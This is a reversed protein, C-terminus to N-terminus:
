SGNPLSAGQIATLIAKCSFEFYVSWNEVWSITGQDESDQYVEFFLCEAEASVVEFIPKFAEFFKPVNDPSIYVTVQLSFGAVSTPASAMTNNILLTLSLQHVTTPAEKKQVQVALGTYFRRSPPAPHTLPCFSV